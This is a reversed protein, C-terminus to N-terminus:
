IGAGPANPFLRDMGNRYNRITSKNEVHDWCAFNRGSPTDRHSRFYKEENREFNAEDAPTM